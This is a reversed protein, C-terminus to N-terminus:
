RRGAAPHFQVATDGARYQHYQLESYLGPSHIPSLPIELQNKHKQKFESVPDPPARVAKRIEVASYVTWLLVTCNLSIWAQFRFRNSQQLKKIIARIQVM